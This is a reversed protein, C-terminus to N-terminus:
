DVWCEDRKYVVNEGMQVVSFGLATSSGALVSGTIASASADIGVYPRLWNAAEYSVDTGLFCSAAGGVAFSLGADAKLNAYNPEEVGSMIPGYFIRSLRLGTFFALTAVGGTVLLSSNFSWGADQLANVTPQWIGGSCIAASGLMFGTQFQAGLDINPDGTVLKKSAMYAFHGM